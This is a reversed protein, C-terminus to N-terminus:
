WIIPEWNPVWPAPAPAPLTNPTQIAPPHPNVSWLIPAPWLWAGSVQQLEAEDLIRM